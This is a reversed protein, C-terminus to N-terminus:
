SKVMGITLIGINDNYIEDFQSVPLPNQGLGCEITYGPRNYQKIFWDKYGAYGSESPTEEVTYGSAKGMLVAIEYSLPPLYNLYKWYIIRGQTHYALILAFDHNLTFEYIARSEPESLPSPGVFDRPAPSTYGQEFKIQKANEWGAPFQLNLDVGNINAKWGSPFPVSPYNRAYLQARSYFSKDQTVGTVLDVGDPNVMPVIFLSTMNYLAFASFENIRGGTSYAHSYEEAFKLLVPTTIWENAHFAANYFIQKEGTGIRLSYIEKGMVSKGVSGIRLFPYRVVLGELVSHLLFYTYSINTPVVDFGFPIILQQGVQLNEPVADPNATAIARVTTNYQQSLSWFTDGKKLKVTTYGKIYPMLKGWTGNGVIGDAKLGQVAQFEKVAAQTRAGFIGDPDGPHTGARSLATQLLQVNAGKSGMSLTEM